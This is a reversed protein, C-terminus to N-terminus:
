CVLAKLWEAMEGFWNLYGGQDFGYKARGGQGSALRNADKISCTLGRGVQNM